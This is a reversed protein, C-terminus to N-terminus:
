SSLLIAFFKKKFFSNFLVPKSILYSSNIIGAYFNNIIEYVSKIKNDALITFDFNELM